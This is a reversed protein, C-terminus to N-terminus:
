SSPIETASHSVVLNDSVIEQSITLTQEILHVKPIYFTILVDFM